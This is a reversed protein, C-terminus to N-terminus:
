QGDSVHTAEETPPYHIGRQAMFALFDTTMDITRSIRRMKAVMAVCFLYITREKKGPRV